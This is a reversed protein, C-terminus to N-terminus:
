DVIFLVACKEFFKSKENAKLIRVADEDSVIPYFNFIGEGDADVAKVLLPNDGVRDSKLAEDMEHLFGVIGVKIVYDEDVKMIGYVVEGNKALIRPSMCPSIELGRADIIVGTYNKEVPPAAPPPTYMAIEHKKVAEEEKKKLEPMVLGSFGNPHDLIFGLRVECAIREKGVSCDPDGIMQAGKIFAEVKSQFDSTYFSEDQIRTLKTLQIGKVTEALLVYARMRAAEQSKIICDDEDYCNIVSGIAKVEIYRDKWDITQEGTVTGLKPSEVTIEQQVILTSKETVKTPTTQADERQDKVWEPVAMAQVAALLLVALVALTTLAGKTRKRM